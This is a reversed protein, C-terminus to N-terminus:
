NGNGLEQYYRKVLERFAPPVPDRDVPVMPNKTDRKALEEAVRDRLEVLPNLIRMQLHDVQPAADNREHDIRMARANDLVKAAENRLEPQNLLEEVNRLRDTWRDYGEGTLPRDNAVEAGQDFFFAGGENGGGGGGGATNRERGGPQQQSRNASLQQQAGKQQPEASSEPSPQGGQGGQGAEGPKGGTGKKGGAGEKGEGQAM